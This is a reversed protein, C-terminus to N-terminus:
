HYGSGNKPTNQAAPAAPQYNTSNITKYRENVQQNKFTRTTFINKRRLLHAICSGALNSKESTRTTKMVRLCEVKTDLPDSWEPGNFNPKLALLKLTELNSQKGLHRFGAWNDVGFLQLLSNDSANGNLPGSYVQDAILNFQTLDM